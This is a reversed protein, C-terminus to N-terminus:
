ESFVEQLEENIDRLLETTTEPEEESFVAVKSQLVEEIADKITSEAFLRKMDRGCTPCGDFYLGIHGMSCCGYDPEPGDDETM